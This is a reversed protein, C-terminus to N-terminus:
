KWKLIFWNYEKETQLYIRRNWQSCEWSWVNPELQHHEIEAGPGWNQWCWNRVEIFKKAESKHFQIGYKFITHGNYRKDLKLTKM